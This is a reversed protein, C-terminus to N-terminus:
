KVLFATVVTLNPEKDYIQVKLCINIKESFMSCTVNYKAISCFLYKKNKKNQKLCNEEEM